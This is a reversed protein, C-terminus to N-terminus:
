SPVPQLHNYHNGGRWALHVEAVREQAVVGPPTIGYLNGGDHVIVAVKSMHAFVILEPLGGWRLSDLPSTAPESM